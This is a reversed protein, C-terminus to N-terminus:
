ISRRVRGANAGTVTFKVPDGPFPNPLNDTKPNFKVGAPPASLGGDWAPVMGDPTGARESGLPTLDKGLRAAQDASVKAWAGGATMMVAVAAATMLMVKKTM